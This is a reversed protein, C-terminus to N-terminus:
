RKAIDFISSNRTNFPAKDDVTVLKKYGKDSYENWPEPNNKNSWTIDPNTLAARLTCFAAVSSGIGLCVFLPILSPHKRLGQLTLGQMRSSM